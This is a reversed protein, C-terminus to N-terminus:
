CGLIAALAASKTVYITHIQQSTQSEFQPIIIGQLKM